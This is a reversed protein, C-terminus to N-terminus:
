PIEELEVGLGGLRDQLSRRVAQRRLRPLLIREVTRMTMPGWIHVEVFRDEEPTAGTQLLLSPFQDRRSSSEIDGAMKAVCLKARNSWTARHGLPSEYRHRKLSEASNEEYVSARHGIMTERLVFSCEGYRTLGAGDLSLSAFRIHQKYGPFLAEDAIGRLGDWKNGHPLRVEAQLLGYYTPFLEQDSASLRDLERMPRAIVAKSDRVAAEFEEVM